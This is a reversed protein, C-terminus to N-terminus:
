TIQMERECPYVFGRLRDFYPLLYSNTPKSLLTEGSFLGLEHFRFGFDVWGVSRLIRKENPEPNRPGASALQM